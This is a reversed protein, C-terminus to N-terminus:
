AFNKIALILQRARDEVSHGDAIVRNRGAVSVKKWRDLDGLLRKVCVLLEEASSFFLAEEGEIFLKEMIDSRECVLAAGCAPIEFCRRTYRDRNLKSFFCLGVKSEALKKTYENGDLQRVPSIKEMLGKHKCKKWTQNGYVSVEVEAEILAFISEARGDDEFHGAFVVDPGREDDRMNLPYHLEPIFCSRMVEAHKAGAELLEEVNEDRYCLHLDFLPICVRFYCWTRSLHNLRSKSYLPGFPDDNNYCVLLANSVNRLRSLTIPLILTPRWFLIVDPETDEVRLLLLKNLLKTRFLPVTWKEEFKGFYGELLTGYEFRYVTVGQRMLASEFSTEYYVQRWKGVILVKMPYMLNAASESSASVM